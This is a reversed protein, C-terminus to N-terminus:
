YAAGRLCSPCLAVTPMSTMTYGWLNDCCICAAVGALPPCPGTASSTEVQRISAKRQGHQCREGFKVYISM